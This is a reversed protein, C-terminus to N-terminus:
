YDYNIGRTRIWQMIWRGNGLVLGSSKSGDRHKVSASADNPVVVAKNPLLGNSTDIAAIARWLLDIDTDTVAVACM